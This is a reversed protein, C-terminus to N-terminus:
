TEPSITSRRRAWASGTVSLPSLRGIVTSKESIRPKELILWSIAGPSTTRVRLSYNVKITSM